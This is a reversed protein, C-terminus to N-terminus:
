RGYLQGAGYLGMGVGALGQGWGGGEGTTSFPLGAWASPTGGLIQPIYSLWPNAWPQAMAWKMFKANLKAQEVSREVGGGKMAWEIPVTDSAISPGVASLSQNRAAMKLDQAREAGRLRYQARQGALGLTLDKASESLQSFGEGRDLGYASMISPIITQQWDQMAPAEVGERYAREYEDPGVDFPLKGSLLERLAADRLQGTEGYAIGPIMDLGWQELDTLDAVMKGKYPDIGRGLQSLIISALGGHIGGQYADYLPVQQLYTGSFGSNSTDTGGKSSM